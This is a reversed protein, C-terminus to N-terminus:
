PWQARRRNRAGPRRHLRRACASLSTLRSTPAPIGRSMVVFDLSMMSPGCHRCRSSAAGTSALIRPDQLGRAPRRLVLHVAVFRGVRGSQHAHDALGDERIAQRAISSRCAISLACPSQISSPLASSCFGAAAPVTSAHARSRPCDLRRSTRVSSPDARGTQSTCAAAARPARGPPPPACRACCGSAPARSIMYMALREESLSRQRLPLRM